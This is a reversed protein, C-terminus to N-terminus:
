SKILDAVITGSLIALPMGGGPHCSGGCHYLGPWRRSRNPHRSFAAGPSNSSIGYLSGRFSGTERALDAPSLIEEQCIHKELPCDLLKSLRELIFHRVRTSIQTWDQGRDYPMNVLVFWNEGGPPADAPNHKSTINVYITPEGPGEMSTESSGCQAFIEDFERKYDSSFFINNSTLQPWTRNMGWLFVMGSSSPELAEYRKFLPASTDDLLERYTHSIDVNSIVTDCEWTFPGQNSIAEIGCVASGPRQGTRLIRRVPSSAELKAGSERALRELAQPIAIIGGQVGYGGGHYEVWPIIALTAPVKWPHSGNYTAYRDFLQTTKAKSFTQTHVQHLSRLADIRFAQFLSYWFRGKLLIRPDDLSNELFLWHTLRDILEAKKFYKRVKRPNEGFTSQLAAIMDEVNGPAAFRTGDPWFYNCLPDLRMFELYDQRKKGCAAFHRDFVEVLTLLSPGRDFRWAGLEQSAAKGGFHNLAEFLRVEHGRHALLAAAALGGLGGGIIAIRKM